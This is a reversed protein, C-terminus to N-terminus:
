RANEYRSLAIDIARNSSDVHEKLKLLWEDMKMKQDRLAFAMDRGPFLNYYRNRNFEYRRRFEMLEEAEMRNVDMQEFQEQMEECERIKELIYSTCDSLEEQFLHLETEVKELIREMAAKHQLFVESEPVLSRSM